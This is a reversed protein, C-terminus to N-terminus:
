PVRSHLDGLLFFPLPLLCVFVHEQREIQLIRLVRPLVLVPRQNILGAKGRELPVHICHRLHHEVPQAWLHSHQNGPEAMIQKQCRQLVKVALRRRLAHPELFYDGIGNRREAHVLDATCKQSFRGVVCFNGSSSGQEPSSDRLVLFLSALLQLLCKRRRLDPGVCNKLHGACAPRCKDCAGCM